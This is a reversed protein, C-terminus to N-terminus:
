SQKLWDFTAISFNFESKLNIVGSGKEIRMKTMKESTERMYQDKYRM